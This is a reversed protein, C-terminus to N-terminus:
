EDGVDRVFITKVGRGIRRADTGIGSFTEGCGTASVVFILLIVLLVIKKM